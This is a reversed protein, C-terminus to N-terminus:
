GEPFAFVPIARESGEAQAVATGVTEVAVWESAPAGMSALNEAVRKQYSSM